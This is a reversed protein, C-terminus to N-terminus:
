GLLNGLGSMFPIGGKGTGKRKDCDLLSSVQGSGQSISKQQPATSKPSQGSASASAQAGALPNKIRYRDMAGSLLSNIYSSHSEVVNSDSAPKFMTPPPSPNSQLAASSNPQAPQASPSPTPSQPTQAPANTTPEQYAPANPSPTDQVPAEYSPENAVPAEQAPAEYAPANWARPEPAPAQEAPAEYAPANGSPVSEESPADGSPASQSSAYGSSCQEQEGPCSAFVQVWFGSCYGFGMYKYNASDINKRHGPSKIWDNFVDEPTKQAKHINEAIANWQFGAGSIRSSITSGDLGTHDYHGTSSMVSAYTDAASNLKDNLCLPPIGNSVRRENCLDLVRQAFQAEDQAMVSVTSMTAVLLLIQELYKYLQM